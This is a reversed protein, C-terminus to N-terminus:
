NTKYLDYKALEIEVIAKWAEQTKNKSGHETEYDYDNQRKQWETKIQEFIINSKSSNSATVNADILAKRLMRTYIETIDFHIQEQNLVYDNRGEPLVWSGHNYFMNTVFLKGDKFPNLSESEFGIASNTVALANPFDITNPEGKFDDWTLKRDSTWEIQTEYKKVNVAYYITAWLRDCSSLRDAPKHKTLKILNAGSQKALAKLNLINEYYSCNNSFGNDIAKIDGIKEESIIQDDMIDLVVVLEKESLAPLQKTVASRLKPACSVICILLFITLANKM